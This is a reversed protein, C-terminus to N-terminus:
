VSIEIPKSGKTLDKQSFEVNQEYGKRLKITNLWIQMTFNRLLRIIKEQKVMDEQIPPMYM